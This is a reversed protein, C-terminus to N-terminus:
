GGPGRLTRRPYNNKRSRGKGGKKGKKLEAQPRSSDYQPNPIAFQAQVEKLYGELREELAKAQEPRQNVLDNQESIDANRRKRILNIQIRTDSGSYLYM